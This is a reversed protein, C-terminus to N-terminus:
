NKLVEIVKIKVGDKWQQRQIVGTAAHKYVGEGSIKGNEWQGDYEDGNPYKSLGYGEWNSDKYQGYHAEGDPWTDVGYGNRKDDKYQGTYTDGIKPWHFTGYGHKRDHKYEGWYCKGYASECRAIGHLLGQHYEGYYKEGNDWIRIGVGEEEGDSNVYGRYTCNVGNTGTIEVGEVYQLGQQQAKLESQILFRTLNTNAIWLITYPKMKLGYNPTKVNKCKGQM